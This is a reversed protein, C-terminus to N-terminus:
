STLNLTDGHTVPMNSTFPNIVPITFDTTFISCGIPSIIVALPPPLTDQRQTNLIGVYNVATKYWLWAIM